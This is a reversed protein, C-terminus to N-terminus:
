YIPLDSKCIIALFLGFVSTVKPSRHDVEGDEQRSRKQMEAKKGERIDENRFRIAEAKKKLKLGKMIRSVQDTAPVLDVAASDHQRTWLDLRAMEFEPSLEVPLHKCTKAGM